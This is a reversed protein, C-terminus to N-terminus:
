GPHRSDPPGGALARRSADIAAALLDGPDCETENGATRWPTRAREHSREAGTLDIVAAKCLTTGVDIGLLVGDQRGTAM